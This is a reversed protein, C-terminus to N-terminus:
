MAGAVASLFNSAESPTNYGMYGARMGPKESWGYMRGPEPTISQPIGERAVRDAAAQVDEATYAGGFSLEAALNAVDQRFKEAKEMEAAAEAVSKGNNLANMMDPGPNIFVLPADIVIGDPLMFITSATGVKMVMATKSDFIHAGGVTQSIYDSQTQVIHNAGGQVYIDQGVTHSQVGTVTVTRDKGVATSQFGEIIESDNGLVNFARNAGVGGVLNNKVSICMDKQSQLYLKEAGFSDDTVLGNAARKTDMGDPGQAQMLGVAQDILDLGPPAAGHPGPLIRPGMGPPHGGPLSMAGLGHVEAGGGAPTRRARHPSPATRATPRGVAPAAPGVSGGMGAPRPKPYSESRMGGVMKYDPLKYPPPTTTTFVRGLVVPRDPDAGLFDVVVEQGVRPLSIAGFGAGAWPQSVPVWCSSSEDASGDRDWHFIVRVRGFEDTHIEEGAPGTVTASEIGRTTPKPTVLPPRYDIAAYRTECTHSWEEDPHGQLTSAVVLLPAGLESRPHDNITMVMGPQLGHWWTRFTAVRQDGRKADLRKQVQAAGEGENTRAPGRDDAHPTGGAGGKWLFSGYNHHYRELKQEVDLGGQSSASLPYDLPKRYDVDSQTYRGPRVRRRTRVETVCKADVHPGTKAIYPLAIEPQRANPADVIVLRTERGAQEFHYTVGIDELLRHVFTLDTEGYQVRYRRPTYSGCELRPSIGWEGLVEVVIDLESKDQFVRYNRRQSLLWLSPSLQLSYTSAGDDEVEMLEISACLGSWFRPSGDSTWRGAIEFRAPAGVVKDFDVNSNTCIATLRIDFPESLRENVTFERVDFADGSSLNLTVNPAKPKAM